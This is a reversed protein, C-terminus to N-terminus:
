KKEKYFKVNLGKLIKVLNKKPEVRLLFRLYDYDTNIIIENRSIIKINKIENFYCIIISKKKLIISSVDPIYILRNGLFFLKGMGRLDGHKKQHTVNIEYDIKENKDKYDDISETYSFLYKEMYKFVFFLIFASLLTIALLAKLYNPIRTSFFSDIIPTILIMIGIISFAGVYLMLLRFYPKLRKKIFEINLGELDSM